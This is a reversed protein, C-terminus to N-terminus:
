FILRCQISQDPGLISGRDAWAALTAELRNLWRVWLFRIFVSQEQTIQLKASPQDPLSPLNEAFDTKLINVITRYHSVDLLTAKKEYIDEIEKKDLEKAMEIACSTIWDTGAAWDYILRVALARRERELNQRLSHVAVLLSLFAVTGGLWQLIALM